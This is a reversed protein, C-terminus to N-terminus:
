SAVQFARREQRRTEMEAKYFRYASGGNAKSAYLALDAKKMLMDPRSGDEPAITIGISTGVIVTNGDISYPASVADILRTALSIADEPKFLPEQVIAFEDGGLRAVVDTDRVCVRMREAVAKLLKDGVPHGLTDNVNKFLDLDLSLVAFKGIRPARMLLEEMREYFLVRNPLDTLADYHAMHSIQEQNRRRETIDEFTIVFGGDTMPICSASFTRGDTREFVITGRERKDLISKLDAIIQAHNEQAVNTGNYSLQMLQPVTTGLAAIEWKELPVGFLEAMRRNSIILKGAADYMLLGLAMNNLAANFRVNQQEFKGNAIKVSRANSRMTWIFSTLGGSLLLGCILLISSRTQGFPTINATQPAVVLTWQVDGINIPFSRHLEAALVAQSKTEISGGGLRSAFYVPLDDLAAHDAFLYVRLPSKVGSFINDILIGTQFVGQVIGLFNRRRDEVTEHPLGRAYVPLGAWFGRRDGQGTHLLRPPSISLINGDRIHNLLPLRAGGESLDIGYIASTRAETSYFKPFYEDQETSVPLSGDPAISRIHYDPLGDNAAAIEHAFREERRVRPIWSINLIATQGDLLSNSFSEFQERTIAHASSDFLARIAYLKDWFDGIGSQLIIAQNAARGAFELEFSRKESAAALYWLTVSVVIGVLGITLIPAFHRFQRWNKLNFM